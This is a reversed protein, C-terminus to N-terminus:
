GLASPAEPSQHGPFPLGVWVNKTAGEWPVEFHGNILRKHITTKPLLKITPYLSNDVSLGLLRVPECLIMTPFNRFKEEYPPNTTPLPLVMEAGYAETLPPRSFVAECVPEETLPPM